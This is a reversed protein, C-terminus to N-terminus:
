GRTVHASVCLWRGERRAWVDTYRGVGSRGDPKDHTTRAHIIAIDGMIRVRVDHAELNSIKPPQAIQVLFGVRDLLSGDPNSNLFDEALAEEFYGVDSEEVSRVFNQNLRRLTDLDALREAADPEM